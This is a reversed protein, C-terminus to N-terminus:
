ALQYALNTGLCLIFHCQRQDISILAKDQGGLFCKAGHFVKFDLFVCNSFFVILFIFASGAPIQQREKISNLVEVLRKM